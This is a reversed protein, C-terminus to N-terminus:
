MQRSAISVIKKGNAVILQVFPVHKKWGKLQYWRKYSLLLQVTVRKYM